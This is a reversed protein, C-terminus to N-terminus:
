CRGSGCKSLRDSDARLQGEFKPSLGVGTDVTVKSWDRFNLGEIGM